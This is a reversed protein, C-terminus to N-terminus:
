NKNPNQTVVVIAGDRPLMWESTELSIKNDSVNTVTVESQEINTGFLQGYLRVNDSDYFYDIRFNHAPHKLRKTFCIDDSPVIITFSISVKLKYKFRVKIGEEASGKRAMYVSANYFEKDPNPKKGEKLEYNKVSDDTIETYAGDENDKKFLTLKFEPFYTDIADNDNAKKFLNHYTILEDEEEQHPNVLEYEIINKKIVMGKKQTDDKCTITQRYKNCYVMELLQCIDNDLHILGDAMNPSNKHHIAKTVDQRLQLLQPRSLQRVYRNSSLANLFSTKYENLKAHLDIAYLIIVGAICSVACGQLINTAIDALKSDEKCCITIIISITIALLASLIIIWTRPISKDSQKREEEEKKRPCEAKPLKCEKMTREPCESEKGKYMCVKEKDKKEQEMHISTAM